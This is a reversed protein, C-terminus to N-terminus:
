PLTTTGMWGPLCVADPTSDIGVKGFKIRRFPPIHSAVVEHYNEADIEDHEHLHARKNSVYIGYDTNEEAPLSLPDSQPGNYFSASQGLRDLTIEARLLVAVKGLMHPSSENHRKRTLENHSLPTQAYFTGDYIRLMPQLKERVLGPKLDSDYVEFGELNVAWRFDDKNVNTETRVFPDPASSKHIGVRPNSKNTDLYLQDQLEQRSLELLLEPAADKLIKSIVLKPEHHPVEKLFAVDCYPRNDNVFLLMMGEFTIRITSVPM